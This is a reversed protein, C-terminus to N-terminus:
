PSKAPSEGLLNRWTPSFLSLPFDRPIRRRIAQVEAADPVDSRSLDVIVTWGGAAKRLCLHYGIDAIYNPPIYSGDKFLPIAEFYCYPDEVSIRDIRFVIPQPLTGTAYKSLVFSRAADCIAQRESSGPKPTHVSQQAHAMAATTGFLVFICFRHQFSSLM